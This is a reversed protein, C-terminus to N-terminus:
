KLNNFELCYDVVLRKLVVDKTMDRAYWMTLQAPEGWSDSILDQTSSWKKRIGVDGLAKTGLGHLM